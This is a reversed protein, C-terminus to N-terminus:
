DKNRKMVDAIDLFTDDIMLEDDYATILPPGQDIDVGPSYAFVDNLKQNTFTFLKALPIEMPCADSCQGCGVCSDAVHALRTLHFQINPPTEGNKM